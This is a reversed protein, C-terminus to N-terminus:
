SRTLLVIVLIALLLSVGKWFAIPDRELLPPRSRALFARNPHRLDYIFESLEHYRKDPNPHVARRLADDLWAPIERDESLVSTYVLRAQAARTKTKPVQAGYPLAGSLMQYCIVGLSFIDSCATGQEGLFYEPATYQATGLLNPQDLGMRAEAVGAVRVSGFDIIKATGNGDVLVNEPRLDQHLVDQRHFAQLGKAIQEVIRRVEEVGAKPHDRMWQALTQGEIYETVMYAFNRKGRQSPAHLVHASHIRRAIWEEMMFRELYAADEQMEVAPVKLAVQEGSDEDVALYVYSRHSAHIQRVVRYHDVVSNPQLSPPFPLELLTQIVESTVRSPVEDVRVLQVTLNDPSGGEYATAVIRQAAADLDPGCEQLALLMAEETVHEYVGDTALVFLSGAEIAIAQYDFEIHPSAGLARSLYVTEEGLRLRHDETLQRLAGSELAYVRADGAHFIHAASSRIIMGTFTCVYGQDMDYRFQSRRTQSYLWSNAATLIREGCTRTSWAESTCYYDEIFAKVASESANRSVSSSSIGDALAICVGKASLLPEEPICIKHFDQNSDKRGETSFQGATVKLQTPM